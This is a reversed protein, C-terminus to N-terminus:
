KLILDSSIYLVNVGLNTITTGPKAIIFITGSGNAGLSFTDSNTGWKACTVAAIVMDKPITVTSLATYNGTATVNEIELFQYTMLSKIQEKFSPTYVPALNSGKEVKLNKVYLTLVKGVVSDDYNVAIDFFGGNETNPGSSLVYSFPHETENDSNIIGEVGDCIDVSLIVPISTKLIGSVTYIYGNPLIKSSTYRFMLEHISINTRTRTYYGDVNSPENLFLLNKTEVENKYVVDEPCPSWDTPVNGRELKIKLNNIYGPSRFVIEDTTKLVIYFYSTNSPPQIILNNSPAWGSNGIYANSSNFFHAVVDLQKNNTSIANFIYQAYNAKIENVTALRKTNNSDFSGNTFEYEGIRWNSPDNSILNTGGIEVDGHVGNVGTVVDYPSPTWVPDTVTGRELKIKYITYPENENVHTTYLVLMNDPDGPRNFMSISATGSYVGDSIKKLETLYNAGGGIYSSFSYPDSINGWVTVTYTTNLKFSESLNYRYILYANNNIIKDSDLVLNVGQTDNVPPEYGLVEVVDDKTVTVASEGNYTKKGITLDHGVKKVVKDADATNQVASLGLNDKTINVLGTRYIEEAGGKVGSVGSGQVANWKKDSTYFVDTGAPYDVNGGDTFKTNSKFADTVNYYDGPAMDTLANLASFTINGKPKLASTISNAIARTQEFYHKANDTAKDPRNYDGEGNAYSQSLSAWNKSNQESTAAKEMSSQAANRDATVQSAMDQVAAKDAAVTSRDQATKGADAKASAASAAAESASKAAATKSGDAQTAADKAESVYDTLTKFETTDEIDDNQIPNKDVIVQIPSSASIENGVILEVIPYFKGYETVMQPTIEFYLITRDDNWGLAPNQVFKHDQKGWRINATGTAPVAYSEGNSYLSVALVPMKNDYQVLRIPIFTTPRSVFDVGTSHVIKSADPTYKSLAM